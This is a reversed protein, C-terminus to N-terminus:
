FKGILDRGTGMPTGFSGAGSPIPPPAIPGPASPQTGGAPPTPRLTEPPPAPATSGPPTFAFNPNPPAGAFSAAARSLNGAEGGGPALGGPAGPVGSAGFLAALVSRVVASAVDPHVGGGFGALLQPSVPTPAGYTRPLATSLLKVASEVPTVPPKATPDQTPAFTAGISTPIM